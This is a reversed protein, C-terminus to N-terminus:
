YTDLGIMEAEVESIRGLCNLMEGPFISQAHKRHEQEDDTRLETFFEEGELPSGEGYIHWWYTTWM